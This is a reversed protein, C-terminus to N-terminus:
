KKRFDFVAVIVFSLIYFFSMVATSLHQKSMIIDSIVIYIGFIASIIAQLLLWAFTFKRWGNEKKLFCFGAANLSAVIVIERPLAIMNILGAFAGLLVDDGETLSYMTYMLRFFFVFPLVIFVAFILFRGINKIINGNM